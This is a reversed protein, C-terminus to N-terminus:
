NESQSLVFVHSSHKQLKYLWLDNIEWLGKEPFQWKICADYQLFFNCVMGKFVCKSDNYWQLFSTFLKLSHAAFPNQRKLLYYLSIKLFYRYIHTLVLQAYIYMLIISTLSNMHIFLPPSNLSEVWAHRHLVM